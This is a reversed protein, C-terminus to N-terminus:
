PFIIEVTYIPCKGESCMQSKNDRHDCYEWFSEEDNDGWCHDANHFNCRCAFEEFNASM